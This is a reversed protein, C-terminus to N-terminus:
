LSLTRAVSSLAGIGTSSATPRRRSICSTVAGFMSLLAWLLSPRAPSATPTAVEEFFPSFQASVESPFPCLFAASSMMTPPPSLLDTAAM